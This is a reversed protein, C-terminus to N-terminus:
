VVSKRDRLYRSELDKLYIVTTSNDLISQLQGESTRLANEAQKRLTINRVVTLVMAEEGSSIPSLMIEVPFESGDRRRAFLELGAGMARMHPEAQYHSRDREHGKRFRDPVLIEIPQGQMEARSYGFMKETQANVRTILGKSNVVLVGDPSAEFFQQFLAHEEAQGTGPREAATPDPQSHLGKPDPSNSSTM